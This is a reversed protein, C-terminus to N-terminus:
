FSLINYNSSKLQEILFILIKFMRLLYVLFLFKLRKKKFFLLNGCALFGLRFIAAM